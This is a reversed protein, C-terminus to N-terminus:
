HQGQFICRPFSSTGNEMPFFLSVAEMYVHNMDDKTPILKQRRLEIKRKETNTIEIVISRSKKVKISFNIKRM